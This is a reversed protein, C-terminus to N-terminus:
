LDDNQMNTLLYIQIPNSQIPRWSPTFSHQRRIRTLRVGSADSNVFIISASRASVPFTNTWVWIRHFISESCAYMNVQMSLSLPVLTMWCQCTTDQEPGCCRTYNSDTWNNLSWRNAHVSNTAAKRTSQSQRSLIVSCSTLPQRQGQQWHRIICATPRSGCYAGAGQLHCSWCGGLAKLNSTTACILVLYCVLYPRVQDLFRFWIISAMPGPPRRTCSSAWRMAVFNIWVIRSSTSVPQISLKSHCLTGGILSERASSIVNYTWIAIINLLKRQIDEQTRLLVWHSSAILHFRQYEKICKSYKWCIRV